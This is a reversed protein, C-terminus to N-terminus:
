GGQKRFPRFAFRSGLVHHHTTQRLWKDRVWENAITSAWSSLTKNPLMRLSNWHGIPLQVFVIAMIFTKCWHSVFYPLASASVAHSALNRVAIISVDSIQDSSNGPKMPNPSSCALVLYAQTGEWNQHYDRWHFRLKLSQRHGRKRTTPGCHSHSVGWGGCKHTLGTILVFHRNIFIFTASEFHSEYTLKRLRMPWM